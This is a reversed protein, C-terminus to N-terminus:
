GAAFVSSLASTPSHGRRADAEDPVPHEEFRWADYSAILDRVDLRGDRVLDVLRQAGNSLFENTM